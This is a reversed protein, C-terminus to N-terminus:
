PLTDAEELDCPGTPEACPCDGGQSAVQRVSWWADSARLARTVEAGTARPQHAGWRGGRNGPITTLLRVTENVELNHAMWQEVEELRRTLDDLLQLYELLVDRSAEPLKVQQLFRRGAKGFLDSFPHLIGLRHLIAQIRNKIGTRLRSLAMRYRIRERRMQVEPTALYAEPLIGRLQLKGLRDADIRDGKAETKALVKVARPHGLHPELGMQELLDAGWPWGYAAELAVPTGKPVRALWRRMAEQDEHNLRAREKVVIQGEPTMEEVSVKSFKRHIDWGLAQTKM